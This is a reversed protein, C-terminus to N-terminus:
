AAAGTKKVKSVESTTPLEPEVERAILNRVHNLLDRHALEGTFAAPDVADLATLTVRSPKLWWRKPPLMRGSGTICLPVVPAGTELAIKFAGSYFRGLKGDRSRHGEPFFLVHGGGELISRAQALTEEFPLSEVDMYDSLLMVPRFWFMRFPWSRVAFTVDFFPLGGMFFTDFFSLHNIVFVSPRVCKGIGFGKRRFRVFPSVLFLWVRGYIWVYLRLVKGTSWKPRALRTAAWVLPVTPGLFVFGAITWLVMLPYAVANMLVIGLIERLKM